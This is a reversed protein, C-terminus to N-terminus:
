SPKGLIAVTGPSGLPIGLIYGLMYGLMFGLMWSCCPALTMPVPTSNASTPPSIAVAPIVVATPAADTDTFSWGTTDLIGLPSGLVLGLLWGDPDSLRPAIGVPSGLLLSTRGPKGLIAVTRPSGLPSGLINGLMNGVMYGLM